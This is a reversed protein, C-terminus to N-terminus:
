SRLVKKLAVIAVKLQDLSPQRTTLKQVMLGPFVLTKVIPNELHKASFKLFEYAIGAIIPILVIRGLLKTMFDGTLVSFLLISLALVIIIFSTGCRPHLTSFKQANKPTLKKKAEYCNVVKHEAGHYQFLTKVDSLFSIAIVYILFFSIRILGDILNFFFTSDNVLYKTIVLPLFIFLGVAFLLSFVLTSIMELNSLQEEEDTQQNASWMLTSMGLVMMELLYVVGRIIPLKLIKSSATLSLFKKKKVIIKNDKRVAVSYHSPSKMMVGEIVAQGGYYIDKGMYLM